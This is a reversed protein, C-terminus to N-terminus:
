TKGATGAPRIAEHPLRRRRAGTRPSARGCFAPRFPNSGPGFQGQARCRAILDLGDMDPLGLDIIFADHIGELAAAEAAKANGATDVQYGAELLARKLFQQIPLDDEVLLLRM